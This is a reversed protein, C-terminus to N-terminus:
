FIETSRGSTQARRRPAGKGKLSRTALKRSLIRYPSKADHLKQGHGILMLLADRSLCDLDRLFIRPVTRGCRAVTLSCRWESLNGLNGVLNNRRQCTSNATSDNRLFREAAKAKQSPLCVGLDDIARRRHSAAHGQVGRQGASSEAWDGGGVSENEFRIPRWKVSVGLPGGKPNTEKM